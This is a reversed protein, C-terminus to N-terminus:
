PKKAVNGLTSVRVRTNKLRHPALAAILGDVKAAAV